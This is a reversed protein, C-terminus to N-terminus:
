HAAVAPTTAEDLGGRQDRQRQPGHEPEARNRATEEMHAWAPAHHDLRDGDSEHRGEHGRAKEHDGEEAAQVPAV